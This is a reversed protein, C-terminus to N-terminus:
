RQQDCATDVDGVTCSGNRQTRIERTACLLNRVLLVHCTVARHLTFITTDGRQVTQRVGILIRSGSLEGCLNGCRADIQRDRSIAPPFQESCFVIHCSGDGQASAMIGVAIPDRVRNILAWVRRVEGRSIIVTTRQWCRRVGRRRACCVDSGHKGCYAHQVARIALIRGQRRQEGRAREIVRASGGAARVDECFSNRVLRGVADGPVIEFDLLQYSVRRVNCGHIVHEEQLRLFRLIENSCSRRDRRAVNLEVRQGSRCSGPMAQCRRPSSRPDSESNSSDVDVTLSSRPARPLQRVVM